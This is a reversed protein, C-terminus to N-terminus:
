RSNNHFICPCEILSNVDQYGVWLNGLINRNGVVIVIIFNFHLRSKTLAQKLQIRDISSPSPSSENHTHWEGLYIITGNSGNFIQNVISQARSKDRHFFALGRKDGDGPVTINDVSIYSKFYRGLLIGGSELSNSNHQHHTFLEQLVVDTIILDIDCPLMYKLMNM